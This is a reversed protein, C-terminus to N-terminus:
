VLCNSRCRALDPLEGGGVAAFSPDGGLSALHSHGLHDLRENNVVGFLVQGLCLIRQPPLLGRPFVPRRYELEARPSWTKTSGGTYPSTPPPSRM